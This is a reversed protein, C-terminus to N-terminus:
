KGRHKFYEIQQLRKGAAGKSMPKSLRKGAQSYVAYLGKGLPRIV